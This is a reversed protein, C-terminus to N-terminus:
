ARVNASAAVSRGIVSNRVATAELAQKIAVFTAQYAKLIREMDDKTHAFCFNHSAIILVGNKIMEQMFLTKMDEKTYFAGDYFTIRQFYDGDIRLVSLGHAKQLALVETRLLDGKQQLQRPVDERELKDITAIAAALSLTEGFFTGSFCIETMHKMHQRKGVLASIPMGNAMSKGFTALDPTVGYISQAGGLAFRFGTIIEDFVLLTGTANCLTRLQKLFAPDTEPEVMVCAYGKTTLEQRVRGIDGYIFATTLYKVTEPVGTNRADDRAIAWDAWGHYGASLIWNRGTIYRALRVAATTVDTGSKGFRVMEACPILRTLRQALEYELGTSLSFSIGRDLQRRIADDVDPDRYGLINPLLGGVLDVYDNGDVDYVLGGDGHTVFLPSETPYQLHSKSFTQAALPIIKEAAQRMRRSTDYSRKVPEEQVLDALFRENRPHIANLARLQPNKNLFSLIDLYSPHPNNKAIEQCFRYDNVTDLVWREKHLGPIPCPLSATKFRHRNRLIYQTVCGRDSPRVAEVDTAVLAARTFVECDMGDPWTGPDVNSAYDAGTAARLAIIEGIIQPDHFPCDGTVRIVVDAEAAAAAGAFRSLVDTEDGRFVNVGWDNCWAVIKDDAPLTSTAVWTEDLGPVIEMAEKIRMLSCDNEDFGLPMLVKGPLRTSGMRAIIIAVTKV